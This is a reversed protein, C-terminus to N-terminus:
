PQNQVPHVPAPNEQPNSPRVHFPDAEASSTEQLARNSRLIDAAESIRGSAHVTLVTHGYRLERAYFGFVESILAWGILAGVAAGVGLGILGAAVATLAGVPPLLAGFLCGVIGGLLAGLAAGAKARLRPPGMNVMPRGGHGDYVTVEIQDPRFGARILEGRAAEVFTPDIFLGTVTDAENKTM